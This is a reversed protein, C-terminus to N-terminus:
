RCETLDSTRLSKRLVILITAEREHLFEPNSVVSMSILAKELTPPNQM